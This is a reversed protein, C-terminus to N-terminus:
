GGIEQVTLVSTEYPSGNFWVHAAPNNNNEHEWFQFEVTHVGATLAGTVCPLTIREIASNDFEWVSGNVIVTTHDLLLRCRVGWQAIYPSSFSATASCLLYSGESLVITVTMVTMPSPVNSFDTYTSNTAVKTQIIQDTYPTTDVFMMVQDQAAYGTTNIAKVTLNWWGDGFQPASTDWQWPVETANLSGNVLVEFTCPTSNWLMIRVSVIGTIVTNNAPQTIGVVPGVMGPPGQPGETGQDGPAGQDGQPGQPGQTGNPGQPGTPGQPGEPGQPGQLDPPAGIMISYTGLGLGAGGLILAAIFFVTSKGKATAVNRGEM